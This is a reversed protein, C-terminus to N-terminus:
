AHGPLFDNAANGFGEIKHFDCVQLCPRGV